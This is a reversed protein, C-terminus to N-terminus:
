SDAPQIVVMEPCWLEEIDRFATGPAPVPLSTPKPKSRQPRRTHTPPAPDTRRPAKAPEVVELQATSRGGAAVKKTTEVITFRQRRARAIQKALAHLAKQAEKSTLPEFILERWDWRQRGNIALALPDDALLEPEELVPCEIYYIPLVLDDRGARQELELFTELEDRCNKSNFFSPTLVPIFFRAQDLMENLVGKWKQGLAIGKEDDVDQFIVFPEGSVRRVTYSLRTRFQRSRARKM